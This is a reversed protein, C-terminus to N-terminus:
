VSLDTEGNYSSSCSAGRLNHTLTEQLSAAAALDLRSSDKIPSVSNLLNITDVDSSFTNHLNIHNSGSSFSASTLQLLYQLSQLKAMEVAEAKLRLAQEELPHQDMLEKLNTLAILYPLSSLMDTRPRHTMPDMGM